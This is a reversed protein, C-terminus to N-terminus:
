KLFLCLTEELPTPQMQQLADLVVAGFSVLSEQTEEIKILCSGTSFFFCLCQLVMSHLIIVSLDQVEGSLALWWCPTLPLNSAFRRTSGLGIGRGSWSGPSGQLAVGQAPYDRRLSGAESVTAFKFSVTCTAENLVRSFSLPISIAIYYKLLPKWVFRDVLLYGM